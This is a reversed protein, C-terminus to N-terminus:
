DLKERKDRVATRSKRLSKPVLMRIGSSSSSSAKNIASSGSSSSTTETGANGGGSKKSRKDKPASVTSYSFSYSTEKEPKQQTQEGEYDAYSSPRFTVFSCVTIINALLNSLLHPTRAEQNGNLQPTKNQVYIIIYLWFVFLWFLSVNIVLFSSTNEMGFGGPFKWVLNLVM